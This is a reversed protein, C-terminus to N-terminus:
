VFYQRLHALDKRFLWLPSGVLPKLEMAKNCNNHVELRMICNAVAVPNITFVLPHKKYYHTLDGRLAAITIKDYSARTEADLNTLGKIAASGAVLIPVSPVYQDLIDMEKIFWQRICSTLHIDTITVERNNCKIINTIYCYTYTDLGYMRTLETRLLAGATQWGLLSKKISPMRDQENSYM